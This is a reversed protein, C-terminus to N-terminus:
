AYSKARRTTVIIADGISDLTTSLHRESRVARKQARRLTESLLTITTCELVFVVLQFRARPMLLFTHELPLFFYASAISGLFLAWLAPGTGGQWACFAITAFDSHLAERPRARAM